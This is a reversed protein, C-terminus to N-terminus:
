ETHFVRGRSDPVSNPSLTRLWQRLSEVDWMKGEEAMRHLSQFHRLGEIMREEGAPCDSLAAKGDLSMQAYTSYPQVIDELTETALLFTDGCPRRSHIVFNDGLNGLRSLKEIVTKTSQLLANPFVEDKTRNFSLQDAKSLLIRVPRLDKHDRLFNAIEQLAEDTAKSRSKIVDSPVVFIIIGFMERFLSAMERIREDKDDAGPCDMFVASLELPHYLQIEMTRCNAGFGPRFVEEPAGTLTTLLQSKGAETSGEVGVRIQSAILDRLQGVKAVDFLWKSWYVTPEILWTSKVAPHKKIGKRLKQRWDKLTQPNEANQMDDKLHDALPAEAISNLPSSEIGLVELSTQLKSEFDVHLLQKRPLLSYYVGAGLFFAVASAAFGLVSTLTVLGLGAAGEMAPVAAALYQSVSRAALLPGGGAAHIGFPVIDEKAEYYWDRPADLQTLIVFHCLRIATLVENAQNIAHDIREEPDVPRDYLNRSFKRLAEAFSTLDPIVDALKLRGQREWARLSLSSARLRNKQLTDMM